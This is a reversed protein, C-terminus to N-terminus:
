RESGVFACFLAGPGVHTGIVANIDSILPDIEPHRQKLIQVLHEAAERCESHFVFFKGSVDTAYQSFKDALAELAKKRGRVNGASVLKGEENIRLLPKIGLAKGVLTVTPSLRGGRKLYVLDDVTLWQCIKLKIEEAFAAAEEITAGANKKETTLYVLLAQGSCACYSDVLLIKREPYQERLPQAAMVASQYTSSLTSSLGMYLIDKGQKLLKEFETQFAASNVASTRAVGGARMREYFEATTMTENTYEKYEGDFCFTLPTSSVGWQRLLEVSIDCASDTYIVYDSM